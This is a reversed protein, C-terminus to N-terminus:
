AILLDVGQGQQAPSFTLGQEIAYGYQLPSPRPLQFSSIGDKPLSTVPPLLPSQMFVRSSLAPSSPATIARAAPPSPSVSRSRAQSVLRRLEAMKPKLVAAAAAASVKETHSWIQSSQNVLDRELVSVSRTLNDGSGAGTPVRTAESLLASAEKEFGIRSIDAISSQEPLARLVERADGQSTAVEMVESPPRTPASSFSGLQTQGSVCAGSTALNSGRVIAQALATREEASLMRAKAAGSDSATMQPPCTSSIARDCAQPQGLVQPLHNWFWELKDAITAPADARLQRSLSDTIPSDLRSGPLASPTSKAEMMEPMRGSHEYQNATTAGAATTTAFHLASGSSSAVSNGRAGVGHVSPSSLTTHVAAADCDPEADKYSQDSGPSNHREEQAHRSDKHRDHHSRHHGRHPSHHQHADQAYWEAGARTENIAGNSFAAPVGNTSTDGVPSKSLVELLEQVQRERQLYAQMMEAVKSLESRLRLVENFLREVHRQHERCLVGSLHRCMRLMSEQADDKTTCSHLTELLQIAVEDAVKRAFEQFGTSAVDFEIGAAAELTVPWSTSM